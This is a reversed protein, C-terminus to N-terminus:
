RGEEGPGTAEFPAEGVRPPGLRALLATVQAHREGETGGTAGALWPGRAAFTVAEGLFDLAEEAERAARRAAAENATRALLLTRGDEDSAVFAAGDYLVTAFRIPGDTAARWRLKGTALDICRVHDDRASAFVVVDGDSVPHHALEFVM